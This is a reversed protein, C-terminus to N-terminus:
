FRNQYSLPNKPARKQIKTQKSLGVVARLADPLKICGESGSFHKKNPLIILEANLKQKFIAGHKLPVYPDNDSHIVIFNKCHTKIKEWHIRTRFYNSLEKYGLDNTFGAVLIAGGIHKNPKLTELYRLITICGASHGVLYTNGDPKKILKKLHPIWRKIHPLHTIPMQPVRVVFGKKELEEKLWPFWGEKPYGEWGHIIYVKQKM